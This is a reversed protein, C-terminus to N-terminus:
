PRQEIAERAALVAVFFRWSEGKDNHWEDFAVVFARLTENETALEAAIAIHREIDHRLKELEAELAAYDAHMVYQGFMSRELYFEPETISWRTVM